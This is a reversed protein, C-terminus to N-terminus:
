REAEAVGSVSVRLLLGDAEGRKESARSVSPVAVALFPFHMDVDSSASLEETSSARAMHRCIRRLTDIRALLGLRPVGEHGVPYRLKPLRASIARSCLSRSSFFFAKAFLLLM